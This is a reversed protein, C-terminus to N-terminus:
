SIIGEERLKIYLEAYAQAYHHNNIQVEFMMESYHYMKNRFNDIFYCIYSSEQEYVGRFYLPYSKILPLAIRTSNKVYEKVHNTTYTKSGDNDIEMPLLPAIEHMQPAPIGDIESYDQV